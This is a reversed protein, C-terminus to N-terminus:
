ALISHELYNFDSLFSKAPAGPNSGPFPPILIRERRSEIQKDRTRDGDSVDTTSMSTTGLSAHGLWASAM